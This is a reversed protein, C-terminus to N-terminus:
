LSAKPDAQHLGVVNHESDHFYAQFGQGPVPFKPMAVLGGLTVAKLLTADLDPVRLTVIFGNVALTPAYPVPRKLIGGDGGDGQGTDILWYEVPADVRRYSWGLLEAYFAKARAIDDAHIEFFVPIM